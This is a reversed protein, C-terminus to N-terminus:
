RYARRWVFGVLSKVADVGFVGSRLLGALMVHVLAAQKSNYDTLGTALNGVRAPLHACACWLFM